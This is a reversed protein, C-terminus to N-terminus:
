VRKRSKIYTYRIVLGRDKITIVLNANGEGRYEVACNLLSGGEEM